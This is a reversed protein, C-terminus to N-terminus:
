CSGQEARGAGSSPHFVEVGANRSPRSAFPTPRGSRMETAPSRRGSPRRTTSDHRSGRDRWYGGTAGAAGTVGPVGAIGTAGTAGTAVVVDPTVMRAAGTADTLPPLPVHFGGVQEASSRWRPPSAGASTMTARNRSLGACRTVSRNGAGIEEIPPGNLSGRPGTAVTTVRTLRQRSSEVGGRAAIGQLGQVASQHSSQASVLTSGM